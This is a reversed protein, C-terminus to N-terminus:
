AKHFVGGRRSVPGWQLRGPATPSRSCTSCWGGPSLRPGWQLPNTTLEKTGIEKAGGRRSVPAGNFCSLTSAGYLLAEVEGGDLSPPGMSAAVSAGVVVGTWVDEGGDLSPPGMSAREPAAPAGARLVSGGTSLRPGWQLRLTASPIMRLTLTEGGDLSPPGMSAHAIHGGSVRFPGGGGRRSVSPPGMSAVRVVEEGLGALDSGGTSLRPGWQLTFGVRAAKMMTVGGGRRSVPAGNFRPRRRCACRPSIFEGGDLSPPGMSAKEGSEDWVLVEVEGGDLSPPGMSAQRLGVPGLAVGIEGGRRSVPAGNFCLRQLAGTCRTSREGGDLSPPGM